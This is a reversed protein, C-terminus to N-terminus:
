TEADSKVLVMQVFAAKGNVYGDIDNTHRTALDRKLEGYRKADDPHARLYDRFTLHRHLESSDEACVYLNHAPLDAPSRFAERSAIGLDGQHAYGLTALRVIADPLAARSPIVVDIDLIPKAPLGPVSTSGVHEICILPSGSFAAEVRAAIGAFLKPWASDYDVVQILKSRM